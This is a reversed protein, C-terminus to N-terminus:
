SQPAGALTTSKGDPRIMYACGTLISVQVAMSNIKLSTLPGLVVSLAAIGYSVM